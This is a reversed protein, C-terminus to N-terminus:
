FGPVVAGKYRELLFERVQASTLVKAIEQLVPDDKDKTRVALVNALPSVHPARVDETFIADRAPQLGAELAYNGNIVAADLDPLARPLQAAELERISLRKPNATIDLVTANLGLGESLRILGAQALLQLARGGNTPDNPIGVVAGDRLDQPRKAKSSYLGMPEVHVRAIYTLDLGHDKSFTELYPIHQFYNADLDGEALALNPRVYDTFEVIRLEIGKEALIPKVFELVEAHPVPTAGIRVVKSAGSQAARAGGGLLGASIGFAVLWVVAAVRRWIEGRQM